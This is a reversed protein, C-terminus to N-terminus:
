LQNIEEASLKFDNVQLNAQLHAKNNARSLVKVNPFDDMCFRLAVADTEVKYKTSLDM